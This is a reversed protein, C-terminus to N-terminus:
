APPLLSLQQAAVRPVSVAARRRREGATNSSPAPEAELEAVTASLLNVVRGHEALQLLAWRPVRLCSGVRVTPLGDTGASAQYRRALEYALTRGIRLVQAAEEVTVVLSAVPDTATASQRKDYRM